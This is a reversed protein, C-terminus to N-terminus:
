PRPGDQGREGPRVDNGFVGKAGALTEFARLYSATEAETYRERNRYDHKAVFSGIHRGLAIWKDQTRAVLSRVRAPEDGGQDIAQVLHPVCLGDSRAYALQLEPDDISKVLTALSRKETDAATMCIPCRRRRRYSQVIEAPARRHFLGGLWSRAAGTARAAREFRRRTLTVLEEYIIAAGFLGHEIELLMWTHWNCFGWSARLTRRTDSDTVQEYLLADLHGRSEDRVCRCIPCGPEGCADVLRLYGIFKEAM